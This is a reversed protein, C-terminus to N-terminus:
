AVRREFLDFSPTSAPQCKIRISMVSEMFQNMM